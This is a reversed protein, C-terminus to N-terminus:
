NTKLRDLKRKLEDAKNLMMRYILELREDAPMISGFTEDIKRQFEIMKKRRRLPLSNLFDQREKLADILPNDKMKEAMTNEGEHVSHFIKVMKDEKVHRM